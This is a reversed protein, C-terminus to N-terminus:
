LISAMKGEEPTAEEHIFRCNSGYRCYGNRFYKCAIEDRRKYINCTAKDKRQDRNYKCKNEVYYKCIRPQEHNSNLEELVVILERGKYILGNINLLKNAIDEPVTIKAHSGYMLNRIDIDYRFTDGQLHLINVLEEEDLETHVNGIFVVSNIEKNRNLKLEKNNDIVLETECPVWKKKICKKLDEM